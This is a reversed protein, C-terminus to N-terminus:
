SKTITVEANLQLFASFPGPIYHFTLGGLTATASADRIPGNIIVHYAGTVDHYNQNVAPGIAQWQATLQTPSGSLGSVTTSLTAHDMSWKFEGKALYNDAFWIQNGSSDTVIALMITEFTPTLGNGKSTIVFITMYYDHDPNYLSWAVAGKGVFHGVAAESAFVPTLLMAFVITVVPILLMKNMGIKRRKEQHV